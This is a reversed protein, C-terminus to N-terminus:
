EEHAPKMMLQEKDEEELTILTDPRMIQPLGRITDGNDKDKGDINFM